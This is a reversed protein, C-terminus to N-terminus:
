RGPRKWANVREAGRRGYVQAHGDPGAAELAEAVRGGLDLRRLFEDASGGARLFDELAGLVCAAAEPSVQPPLPVVRPLPANHRTQFASGTPKHQNM